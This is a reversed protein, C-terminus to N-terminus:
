KEHFLGGVKQRLFIVKKPLFCFLYLHPVFRWISIGMKRKTKFMCFFVNWVFVWKPKFLSPLEQFIPCQPFFCSKGSHFKKQSKTCYIIIGFSQMVYFVIKKKWIKRRSFCKSLIVIDRDDIQLKKESSIGRGRPCLFFSHKFCSM